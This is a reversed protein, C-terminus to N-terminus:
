EPKTMTGCNNIRLYHNFSLPRKMEIAHILAEKM